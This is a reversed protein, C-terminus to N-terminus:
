VSPPVGLRRPPAHSLLKRVVDQGRPDREVLRLRCEPLVIDLVRRCERAGGALAAFVGDPALSKEYDTFALHLKPVGGLRQGSELCRRVSRPELGREPEAGQGAAPERVLVLLLPGLRGLGVLLDGRAARVLRKGAPGPGAPRGDGGVELWFGRDRLLLSSPEPVGARPM